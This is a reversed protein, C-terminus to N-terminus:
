QKILRLLVVDHKAISAKFITATTGADEHKWIDRIKFNGSIKYDSWKIVVDKTQEGSALTVILSREAEPPSKYM